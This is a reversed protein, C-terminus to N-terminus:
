TYVAHPLKQEALKDRKRMPTNLVLYLPILVQGASTWVGEGERATMVGTM